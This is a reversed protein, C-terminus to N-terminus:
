VGEGAVAQLFIQIKASRGILQKWGTACGILVILLLPRTKLPFRKKDLNLYLYTSQNKFFKQGGLKDSKPM